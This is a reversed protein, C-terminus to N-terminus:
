FRIGANVWLNHSDYDSRGTYEYNVGFDMNRYQLNAGGGVTWRSNGAERGRDGGFVGGVTTTFRNIKTGKDHFNYSYGGKGILTLNTEAGLCIDYKATVEIPMELSTADYKMGVRGASTNFRNSSTDYYYLGISPILAFNQTPRFEYGVEGGVSWTNAHYDARDWTGLAIENNMDFDSYTYSAILTTFLGSCHRWSGYLAFNYNDIDGDSGLGGKLDYDGKTYGFAAGFSFGNAFARDYGINFGHADYEYGRDGGRADADAWSGTYGAWIRNAYNNCDLMTLPAGYGSTSAFSDVTTQGVVFAQGKVANTFNTVSGQAAELTGALDQGTYFRAGAYAEKGRGADTYDGFQGTTDRGTLTNALDILADDRTNGPYPTAAVDLLGTVLNNNVLPRFDGAGMSALVDGMRGATPTKSNDVAYKISKTGSDYEFGVSGTLTDRTNNGLWAELEASTKSTSSAIFDDVFDTGFLQSGAAVNANVSLKTQEDISIAKGSANTNLQAATTLAGTNEGIVIKSAADATFKDNLITGTGGTEFTAGNLVVNGQVTGAYVGRSGKAQSIGGAAANVGALFTATKDAAVAVADAATSTTVVAGDFVTDGAVNIKAAKADLANTTDGLKKGAMDVNVTGATTGANLAVGSATFDVPTKANNTINLVSTADTLTTDGVAGAFGTVGADISVTHGVAAVIQNGAGAYTSGAALTLAANANALTVDGAGNTLTKGSAITIAAGDITIADGNSADLSGTLAASAGKFTVAAGTTVDAAVTGSLELLAGAANTLTKATVNGYKNTGAASVKLDADVVNVDVAATQLAALEVKGATIGTAGINGELENAFKVNGIDGAAAAALDKLYLNNATTGAASKTTNIVLGDATANASNDIKGDTSKYNDGVTLTKGANVVIKGANTLETGTTSALTLNGDVELTAPAAIAFGATVVPAAAAIKTTGGTLTLSEATITTASYDGGALELNAANVNIISGAPTTQNAVKFTGATATSNFGSAMAAADNLVITGVDNAGLAVALDAAGAGNLIITGANTIVDTAALTAAGTINLTSDAGVIVKNGAATDTALSAVTLNVPGTAKASGGYIASSTGVTLSAGGSGGGITVAGLAASKETTETNSVYLGDGDGVNVAGAPLTVTTGGIDTWNTGNWVYDTDAGARAQTSLVLTAVFMAAILKKLM